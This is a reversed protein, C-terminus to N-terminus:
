KLIETLYKIAAEDKSRGLWFIISKKLELDKESKEIATQRRQTTLDFSEEVLDRIIRSMVKKRQPDEITKLQSVLERIEQKKEHAERIQSRIKKRFSEVEEKKEEPTNMVEASLRPPPPPMVGEQEPPLTEASFVIGSSLLIAFLLLTIQCFKM